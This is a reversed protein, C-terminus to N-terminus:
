PRSRIEDDPAPVRPGAPTTTTAAPVRCGAAPVSVRTHYRRTRAHKDNIRCVSPPPPPLPPVGFVISLATVLVRSGIVPSVIRPGRVLYFSLSLFFSIIMFFVLYILRRRWLSRRRRWWRSTGAGGGGGGNVGNSGRWSSPWRRSADGDGDSGGSPPTTPPFPPPSPPLPAAATREGTTCRAADTAPFISGCRSARSAAARTTEGPATTLLRQVSRPAVAGAFM